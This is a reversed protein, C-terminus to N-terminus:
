SQDIPEKRLAFRDVVESLREPSVPKSLFADMGAALCRDKDEVTANATLAVIPTRREPQESARWRHTVELGDIEPMRMDMFVLDYRQESLKRLAAAGNEAHDALHGANKLFTCIVKANIASDEAVLIRLPERGVSRPQTAVAGVPERNLCRRLAQLSVPKVLREDYREDAERASLRSLYTIACLMVGTGARERVRQALDGADPATLEESLLVACTAPENAALADIAELLEENSETARTEAGLAQCYRELVGRSLVNADHILVRKIQPAILEHAVTRYPWTIEFWFCTGQQQTSQVGIDGGMLRVLDRSITLGLGTGALRHHHSEDGQYFPEFVYDLQGASIGTGTDRIEVRATVKDSTQQLAQARLLVHGASTFKVANSVLNLMVQRVRQEDGFVHTPLAPDIDCILEVGKGQASPAFTTAVSQLVDSLDFEDCHLQYKGAEIKSIDLVDDILSHLANATSKLADVYDRQERTLPTKDLLTAMGTIGSMPTRIEHSMTALFSSKARNAADAEARARQLARSMATLYLPIVLLFAFYVIADLYYPRWGEDEWMLAVLTVCSALGLTVLPGGGYRMGYGVYLWMYFLYFPSFPGAGTLYAAYSILGVDLLATIHPRARVRPSHIISALVIASLTFFILFFSIYHSFDVSYRGTAAAVGIYLAGFGGVAFRLLASTFEPNARLEASLSFGAAM